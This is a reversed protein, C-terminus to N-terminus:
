TSLSIVKKKKRTTKPPTARSNSSREMDESLPHTQTPPAVSSSSSSFPSPIPTPSPGRQYSYSASSGGVPPSCGGGAGAAGAATPTSSTPSDPDTQNVSVHQSHFAPNHRYISLPRIPRNGGLAFGTKLGGGGSSCGSFSNDVKKDQFM